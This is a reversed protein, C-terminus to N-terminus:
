FTVLMGSYGWRGNEAKQDTGGGDESKALKSSQICNPICQLEETQSRSLMTLSMCMTPPLLTIMTLATCHAMTNSYVKDKRNTITM